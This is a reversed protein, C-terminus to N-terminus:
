TKQGKALSRVQQVRPNNPELQEAIELEAKGRKASGTTFHMAALNAHFLANAPALAVARELLEIARAPQQEQLIGALNNHSEADNPNRRLAEEYALRANISDGLTRYTSGIRFYIGPLAPKREAAQLYSALAKQGENQNVQITGLESWLEARSPDLELAQKLLQEAEDLRNARARLEGLAQYTDTTPALALSEELSATARERWTRAGSANGQQEEREGALYETIGLQTLMQARDAFRDLMKAYYAAAREYQAISRADLVAQEYPARDLPLRAIVADSLHLSTAVTGILKRYADEVEQETKPTSQAIRSSEESAEKIRKQLEPIPVGQAVLGEDRQRSIRWASNHQSLTYSTWYWHRSSQPNITTGMPLEDMQGGLPSDHLVLSWFAEVEKRAGLRYGTPVWLSSTETAAPAQERVLLLRLGGPKAEDAWQRRQALFEDRSQARRSPHDDALLDYILGYDGFSWAGLMNAVVEEPEMGNAIWPHDGEQDVTQVEEESVPANLLVERVLAQQRKYTDPLAKKRWDNISLAELLL